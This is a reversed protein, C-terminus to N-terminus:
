LPGWYTVRNVTVMNCLGEQGGSTSLPCTWLAPATYGSICSSVDYDPPIRGGQPLRTMKTSCAPGDPQLSAM